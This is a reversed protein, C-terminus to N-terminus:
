ELEALKKQAKYLSKGLEIPHGLTNLSREIAALIAIIDNYNMMGMHGVRFYKDRLNHLIGGAIIINRNLMEEKFDNLSISHPLYVASVTSARCSKDAMVELGLEEVGEQFLKAMISHKRFWKELGYQFIKKLAANLAYVLNIAPTAYYRPKKNEYSKMIRIWNNLDMYHPSLNNSDLKKLAKPSLWVLALGTPTSLAKQSGTFLVDVGYDEMEIKEGAVSCVGDVILLTDMNKTFNGINYIDHVVGTSTDVHTVFVAAYENNELEEYILKNEVKAGPKKTNIKKVSVPYRSLIKAALDGFFGNSVVLVKANKSVFNTLSAEMGVTGSGAMIVPQYDDDVYVLNRLLSVTEAIIETFESSMHGVDSVLLAKLVDIDLMTPGPIALIRRSLEFV